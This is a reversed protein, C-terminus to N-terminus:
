SYTYPPPRIRATTLFILLIPENHYINTNVANYASLFYNEEKYLIAFLKINQTTTSAVATNSHTSFIVTNHSRKEIFTMVKPLSFKGKKPPIYQKPPEKKTSNKAIFHQKQKQTNKLYVISVNNSPKLGTVKTGEVVYICVSDKQPEILNQTVTTEKSIYIQTSKSQFVQSFISNPFIIVCLLRLLTLSNWSRMFEKFLIFKGRM